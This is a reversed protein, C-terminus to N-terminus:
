EDFLNDSYRGTLANGCAQFSLWEVPFLEADFDAIIESQRRVTFHRQRRTLPRVMELPVLLTLTSQDRVQFTGELSYTSAQIEIPIDLAEGIESATFTFKPSRFVLGVKQQRANEETQVFAIVDQDQNGGALVCQGNEEALEWLTFREGTQLQSNAFAFAFLPGFILSM